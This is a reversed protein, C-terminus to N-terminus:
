IKRRKKPEPTEEGILKVESPSGKVRTVKWSRDAIDSLREDHTVMIVQLKMRHSVEKIMNAMLETLDGTWKFPEDFVLVNRSRPKELSWM